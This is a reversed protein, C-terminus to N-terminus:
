VLFSTFINGVLLFFRRTPTVGYQENSKLIPFLLLSLSTGELVLRIEM